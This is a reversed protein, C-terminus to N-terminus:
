TTDVAYEEAGGGWEGGGGWGEGVKLAVMNGEDEEGIAAALVFRFAHAIKAAQEIDGEVRVHEDLAMSWEGFEHVSRRGIRILCRQLVLCNQDNTSLAILATLYGFRLNGEERM